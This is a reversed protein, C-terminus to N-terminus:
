LEDRYPPNAGARSVTIAAARAAHGLAEEIAAKDLAAPDVGWLADILAAGFTDGAGITDVVSVPRAAVDVREHGFWTAGEGGRTVVVAVPGLGRLHDAAQELTMDPYLVELDEDSAKVWTARAAVREVGAVVVPGTGTVAPRANVDYSVPVGALGDLLEVVQSAGPQLLAGLSCVHVVSPQEQLDLPTLRWDLDFTYSAAGDPGITAVAASTHDLAHPDAALEVGAGAVREALLRGRHDAYATWFRVPRGLRSLAVAANAGSGGPHDVGDVVDVLAEGIVLAHM